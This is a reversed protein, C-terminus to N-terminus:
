AQGRVCWATAEVTFPAPGLDLARAARWFVTLPGRDAQDWVSAAVTGGPRTVRRMEGLGAVPDAM